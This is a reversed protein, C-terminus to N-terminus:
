NYRAYILGFFVSNNVVSQNFSNNYITINNYIFEISVVLSKLFFKFDKKWPVFYFLLKCFLVHKM